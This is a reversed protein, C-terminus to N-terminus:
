TWNQNSQYYDRTNHSLSHAKFHSLREEHSTKCPKSKYPLGSLSSISWSHQSTPSLPVRVSNINSASQVWSVRCLAFMYMRNWMQSCMDVQCTPSCLYLSCGCRLLVRLNEHRAFLWMHLRRRGRQVNWVNRLFTQKRKVLDLFLIFGFSCQTDAKQLGHPFLLTMQTHKMKHLTNRAWDDTKQRFEQKEWHTNIDQGYFLRGTSENGWHCHSDKGFVKAGAM